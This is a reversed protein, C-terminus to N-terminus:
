QTYLESAETQAEKSVSVPTFPSAAATRYLESYEATLRKIRRTVAFTHDPCLTMKLRIFYDGHEACSATAVAANKSHLIFKSRKMIKRCVPCGCLAIRRDRLASKRDPINLYTRIYKESKLEEIDKLMADYGDIYSTFNIAIGVRAAFIADNLAVHAKLDCPLAYQELVATLGPRKGSGDVKYAYILQLDYFRPLTGKDLEHVAINQEMIKEDESGWTLIISDEGCWKLFRDYEVPFKIGYTISSSMLGTVRGVTHNLQKYFKPIVCGQYRDTEKLESNYKVAGIRIIEGNLVAPSTVTNARGRPQNWEM